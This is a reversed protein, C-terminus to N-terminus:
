EGDLIQDTRSAYVQDRRDVDSRKRQGPTVPALSPNDTKPQVPAQISSFWAVSQPRSGSDLPMNLTRGVRRRELLTPTKKAKNFRENVRQVYIQYLRPTLAQLTEADEPTGVGSSLRDLAAQPDMAAVVYKGARRKTSADQRGPARGMPDSPDVTPPLKSAIFDARERAKTRLAEALAPDDKALDATSREFMQSERSNPDQLAVARDIARQIQNASALTVATRAVARRQPDFAGRVANDAAREVRLQTNAADETLKGLPTLVGGDGRRALGYLMSATTAEFRDRAFKSAVATLAGAPGMAAAGGVGALVDNLGMRNNSARSFAGQEAVDSALALHSYERKAQKLRQAYGEVGRLKAAEDSADEFVSEIVRRVDRMSETTIDPAMPGASGWKLDPRQDFARRLEHLERLTIDDAAGEVPTLADAIGSAQLKGRVADAIDQTGPRSLPELVEREVRELVASRSTTADAVEDLIGALEQGAKERAAPLRDAIEDVTDGAKVLGRKLLTQGIEKGGGVRAALRQSAISTRGVAAKFAAEGAADALSAPVEGLAGALKGAGRAAARGSAAIGAMGLELASGTTLGSWFSDLAREATVDVDGNAADDLVRRLATDAASELGTAIVRGAVAGARSGVWGAARSGLATAMKAGLSAELAAPTMRAAAGVAGTGGSLLAPAVAGVVEGALETGPNYEARLRRERDYDSDVASAVAGYAGLTAGQAVGELGAGVQSGVDGYEDAEVARAVQDPAALQFGEGLSPLEAEDVTGLNGLPSVVYVRGDAARTPQPGQPADMPQLLEAQLAADPDAPPAEAPGAVPQLLSQQLEEDSITM